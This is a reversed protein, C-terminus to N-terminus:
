SPFGGKHPHGTSKGWIVPNGEYLSLWPTMMLKNYEGGPLSGAAGTRCIGHRGPFPISRTRCGRWRGSPSHLVTGPWASCSDFANYAPTIDQYIVTDWIACVRPDIDILYRDSVFTDSRYRILTSRLTKAIQSLEKIYWPMTTCIDPLGKSFLIVKLGLM